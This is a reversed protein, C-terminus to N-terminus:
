GGRFGRRTARPDHGELPEVRALKEGRELREVGAERAADVDEPGFVAEELAGAWRAVRPDAAARRVEAPTPEGHVARRDRSRAWEVFRRLLARRRSVVAIAVEGPLPVPGELRAHLPAETVLLDTADTPCPPLAFRGQPDATVAALVQREGGFSAREIAVRAGPVGTEDHADIVRGRLGGGPDAPGVREVRASTRLAPAPGSAGRAEEPSASAPTALGSRFLAFWALLGLVALGVATRRLAAGRSVTVEIALPAGPLHWPDAPVYRVEARAGAVPVGEPWRVEVHSKGEAVPAVGVSAGDIRVEVSGLPVPEGTRSRVEVDTVAEDGDVRLSQNGAGGAGSTRLTVAVHRACRATARARAHRADGDFEIRLEGEGPAGLDAPRVEFTAEGRADTAAEGLATGRDDTLRLRLNASSADGRGDGGDGGSGGALAIATGRIRVKGEDLAVDLATADFAVTVPASAIDIALQSRSGSFLPTGAFVLAASATGTGPPAPAIACFTGDKATTLTVTGDSSAPLLERDRCGRAEMPSGGETLLRLSLPAGGIVEGADDVLAGTVALTDRSGVTAPGGHAEISSTGLVTVRPGAHAAPAFAHAWVFAAALAAIARASVERTSMPRWDLAANGDFRRTPLKAARDRAREGSIPPFPLFLRTGRPPYPADFSSREGTACTPTTTQTKM